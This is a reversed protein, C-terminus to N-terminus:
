CVCKAGVNALVTYEHLINSIGVPILKTEGEYVGSQPSITMGITKSKITSHIAMLLGLQHWQTSFRLLSLLALSVDLPDELLSLSVGKEAWPWTQLVRVCCPM